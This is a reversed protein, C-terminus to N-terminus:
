LSVVNNRNTGKAKYLAKDAMYIFKKIALKDTPVVTYTGLSVTIHKSVSSYEHPIALDEIRKRIEEAFSFVQEKNTNPLVIAFEEGGYRSAIASIKKAYQSIAKAVQKLCEDGAPHGYNDNYQKFYDIDLLIMSIPKRHVLSDEWTNEIVEDFKYRNYSGTLSDTYSLRELEKNQQEIIKRNNFQSIRNKFQKRSIYWSVVIITSTNIFNGFLITDSKQIYFLCVIFITHVFIFIALVFIPELYTAIAVFIVGAIYVVTQGYHLQDIISIGAAWLVMFGAFSIEIIRMMMTNNCNNDGVKQFLILFVIMVIIMLAYMVTYYMNHVKFVLNKIDTISIIFMIVEIIIFVKSITKGMSLNIEFNESRFEEKYKDQVSIFICEKIKDM